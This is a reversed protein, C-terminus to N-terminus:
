GVDGREAERSRMVTRLQKFKRLWLLDMSAAGPWTVYYGVAWSNQSPCCSLPSYDRSGRWNEHGVENFSRRGCTEGGRRLSELTMNHRLKMGDQRRHSMAKDEGFVLHVVARRSQFPCLGGDM